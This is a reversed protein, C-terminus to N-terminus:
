CPWRCPLMASVLYEFAPRFSPTPADHEMARTLLFEELASAVRWGLCRTASWPHETRTKARRGYAGIVGPDVGLREALRAVAGTAGVGCGGCDAGAGAGLRRAVDCCPTCKNM